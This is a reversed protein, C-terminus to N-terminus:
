VCVSVCLRERELLHIYFLLPLLVPPHYSVFCYALVCGFVKDRVFMLMIKAHTQNRLKNEDKVSFQPSYRLVTKAHSLSSPLIRASISHSFFSVHWGIKLFFYSHIKILIKVFKMFKVFSQEMRDKQHFWMFDESRLAYIRIPIINRFRDM